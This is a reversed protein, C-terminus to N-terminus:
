YAAARGGSVRLTVRAGFLWYDLSFSLSVVPRYFGTNSELIRIVDTPELVRSVSIWRFDDSLFGLGVVPAYVALFALLPAGAALLSLWSRPRRM